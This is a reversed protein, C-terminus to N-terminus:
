SEKMRFMEYINLVRTTQSSQKRIKLNFGLIQRQTKIIQAVVSMDTMKKIPCQLM